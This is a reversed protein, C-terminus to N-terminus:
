GFRSWSLWCGLTPACVLGGVKKPQVAEHKWCCISPTEKKREVFLGLWCLSPISKMSRLHNGWHTPALLLLSTPACCRALESWRTHTNFFFFNTAHISDTQLQWKREKHQTSRCKSHMPALDGSYKQTMCSFNISM